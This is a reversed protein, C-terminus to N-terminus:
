PMCDIAAIKNWLQLLPIQSVGSFQADGAEIVIWHENELQGIDVAVFPVSLRGAAALALEEVKHHEAKSLSKLEDDGEWYYGLGIIEQKYIFARYERGLPFGNFSRTHRLQVLERVIIRGRSKAEFSLLANVLRVLDEETEAVCAKRGQGKRSQVTGKVFVPLGLEEIADLCQQPDTVTVSRPTLGQLLPYAADFEQATQHQQPSNLLVVNKSFAASFIETYRAVTPIYGIWVAPTAREQHPVHWLANEATECRSFDPPITYVKCGAIKAAETSAFLDRTSASPRLQDSAESFVIVPHTM